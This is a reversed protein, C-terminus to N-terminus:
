RGGFAPVDHSFSRRWVGVVRGSRESRTQFFGASQSRQTLDSARRLTKRSALKFRALPSQTGQDSLNQSALIILAIRSTYFREEAFFRPAVNARFLSGKSYIRRGSHCQRTRPTSAKAAV